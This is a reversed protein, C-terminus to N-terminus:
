EGKEMVTLNRLRNAAEELTRDEKAFCFRILKNDTKSHYFASMPITAVGYDKILRESFTKDDEDSIASYDALQFYSGKAPLTKFPTDALLHNLLDRKQQYFSNIAWYPEQDLYEAIAHQIPTNTSYVVFQHLKRFEKMIDQPAIIYGIRWGTVHFTKGFSALIISREKLEPVRILSEHQLGDFIMHEYVEDSLLIIKTGAVIRKLQQLDDASLVSGTPNHPTNLIIMKTHASIAKKVQEWDIKFDPLKMQVFVPKGGYLKVAPVYSDFYPEFIIVEDGESILASLATFIGESAGSTVNIELDTDYEVGYLKQVKRGIAQRLPQVGEPPAYQNYGLRMYKEVLGILVDSIAFDPFGQSLNVANYELALKSTHAFISTGINPLKSHAM